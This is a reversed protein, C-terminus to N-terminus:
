WTVDDLPGRGLKNLIHGQALFPGVGLDCSKCLNINPCVHFFDEQRFGCQRSCQYKTNLMM